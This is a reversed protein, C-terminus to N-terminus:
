GDRKGGEAGKVTRSCGECEALGGDRGEMEGEM